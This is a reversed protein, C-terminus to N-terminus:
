LGVWLKSPAVGLPDKLNNVMGVNESMDLRGLVLHLTSWLDLSFLDKYAMKSTQNYLVVTKALPVVVGLKEPYIKKEAWTRAMWETMEVELQVLQSSVKDFVSQNRFQMKALVKQALM